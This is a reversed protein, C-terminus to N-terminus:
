FYSISCKLINLGKKDLNIAFTKLAQDINSHESGVCFKCKWRKINLEKCPCTIVFFQIWLGNCLRNWHRYYQNICTIFLEAVELSIFAQSKVIQSLSFHVSAAESIGHFMGWTSATACLWLFISIYSARASNMQLSTCFQATLHCFTFGVRQSGPKSNHSNWFYVRFINPIYFYATLFRSSHYVFFVWALSLKLCQHWYFFDM